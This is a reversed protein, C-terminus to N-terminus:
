SSSALTIRRESCNGACTGTPKKGDFKRCYFNCKHITQSKDFGYVDLPSNQVSVAGDKDEPGGYVPYTTVLHRGVEFIDDSKEKRQRGMRSSVLLKENFFLGDTFNATSTADM